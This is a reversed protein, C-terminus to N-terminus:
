LFWLHEFELVSNQRRIERLDWDGRYLRDKHKLFSAILYIKSTSPVSVGLRPIM